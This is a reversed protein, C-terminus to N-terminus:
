LCISKNDLSIIRKYVSLLQERNKDRDHRKRAIELSNKSLNIALQDDTFIKRIQRALMIPENSNYLMGTVGDQSYDAVGGVLAAVTPVGVLQAEALANPSNEITSPLVFVHSRLLNSVIDKAALRGTFVVHEKLDYKYILDRILNQYGSFALKDRLSRRTIMDKGAVYLRTEPFEKVLISLAELLFHLGKIPYHAQTMFISFRDVGSLSWQSNYFEDRLNRDCTFYSINPNINSVVARDWETRGIVYKLQSVIIIENQGRQKYRYKREIIGDLLLNDRTTRYRLLEWITIGNFYHKFIESTLGQLTAVIPVRTKTELLSNCLYFEIGHVDIIDPKFSNIQEALSLKLRPDYKFVGNKSPIITYQIKNSKITLTHSVNSVTVINVQSVQPLKCLEDLMTTIWGGSGPPLKIGLEKSAMPLMMSTLWMLRM